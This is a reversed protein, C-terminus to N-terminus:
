QTQDNQEKTKLWYQKKYEPNKLLWEKGYNPNKARWKKGMEKFREKNKLRYEKFFFPLISFILVCIYFGLKLYLISKYIYDEASFKVWKLSFFISSEGIYIGVM